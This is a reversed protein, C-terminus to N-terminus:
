SAENSLTTFGTRSPGKLVPGFESSPPWVAWLELKKMGTSLHLQSITQTDPSEQSLEPGAPVQTLVPGLVRVNEKM